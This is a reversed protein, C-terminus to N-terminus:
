INKIDTSVTELRIQLENAIEKKQLGEALLSLIEHERPTLAIDPANTDTHSGMKELVTPIVKPDLAGGGQM